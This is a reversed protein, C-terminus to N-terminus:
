VYIISKQINEAVSKVRISRLGEPTLIDVKKGLLKEIHEALEMFKFGIPKAFEVLIDVDSDKSQIGKAFSGFIAIREVGYRERLYPLEKRLIEVIKERAIARKM